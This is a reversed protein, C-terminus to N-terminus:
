RELCKEAFIELTNFYVKNFVWHFLIFVFLFWEINNEIRFSNLQYLWLNWLDPGPWLLAISQGFAWRNKRLRSSWWKLKKCCKHKTGTWCPMGDGLIKIWIECILFTVRHACRYASKIYRLLDISTFSLAMVKNVLVKKQLIWRWRM